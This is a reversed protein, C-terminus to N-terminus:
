HLCYLKKKFLFLYKVIKRLCFCMNLFFISLDVSGVREWNDGSRMNKILTLLKLADKDLYKLPPKLTMSGVLIIFGNNTNALYFSNKTQNKCQEHVENIRSPVRNTLKKINKKFFIFLFLFIFVGTKLKHSLSARM